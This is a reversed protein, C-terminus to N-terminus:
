KRSCKYRWLYTFTCQLYFKFILKPECSFSRITWIGPHTNGLYVWRVRYLDFEVFVTISTVHFHLCLGTSRQKQLSWVFHYYIYYFFLTDTKCTVNVWMLRGINKYDLLINQHWLIFVMSSSKSLKFFYKIFTMLWATYM